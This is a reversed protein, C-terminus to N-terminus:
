FLEFLDARLKRALDINGKKLDDRVQHEGKTGHLKDQLEAAQPAEGSGEAEGLPLGGSFDVKVGRVCLRLRGKEQFLMGRDTPQCLVSSCNLCTVVTQSHSFVTTINFCGQCKVDMFFLSPSQVLKKLKHKRKELEALHNLLDIDASLVM